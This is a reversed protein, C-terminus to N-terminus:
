CQAHIYLPLFKTGKCVSLDSNAFSKIILFSSDSIVNSSNHSNNGM